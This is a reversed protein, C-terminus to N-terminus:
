NKSTQCQGPSWTPFSVFVLDTLNAPSQSTEISQVKAPHSSRRLNPFASTPEFSYTVNPELLDPSAPLRSSLPM